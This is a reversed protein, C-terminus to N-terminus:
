HQPINDIWKRWEKASPFVTVKDGLAARLSQATKGPGCAHVADSNVFTGLRQFQEFSNWYILRAAAVAQGEQEYNAYAVRYTAVAPPLSWGTTANEHTLALWKTLEPLGLAPARLTSKIFDFGLGDACGEVWIGQRALQFWSKSGSTWVRADNLRRLSTTDLSEIARYHAVFFAAATSLKEVASVDVAATASTGLRSGDWTAASKKPLAPAQWDLEVTHAGGDFVGAKFLLNGLEEHHVATAGFRQHCGGGKEALIKREAAVLEATRECHLTKLWTKTQEDNSRCEIMLAGQGPASACERLPLVMFRAGRLIKQTQEPCFKPSSYLRNLGALALVVGDLAKDDTKELRGLRSDINGRIEVLEFKPATSVAVRPLAEALFRPINELRRPASTGIRLTLGERIRGMIDARFIIVDRPDERKPIAASYIGAPRELSLDKLSHVTIDAEGALLAEDLEKVFFEKGEVKSLSVNQIKDGTTVIEKFEVKLGAINAELERAMMHSQALALPSRRTGLRLTAM